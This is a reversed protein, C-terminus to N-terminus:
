IRSFVRSASSRFFSCGLSQTTSLTSLFHANLPVPGGTSASQPASKSSTPWAKSTIPTQFDMALSTRPTAIGGQDIRVPAETRYLIQWRQMRGTLDLGRLEALEDTLSKTKLWQKRTM